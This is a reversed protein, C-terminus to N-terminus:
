DPKQDTRTPSAPVAEDRRGRSQAKRRKLNARLAEALRHRKEAEPSPLKRDDSM